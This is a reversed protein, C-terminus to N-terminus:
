FNCKKKQEPLESELPTTISDFKLFGSEEGKDDEDNNSSM